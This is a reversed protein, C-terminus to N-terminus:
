DLRHRKHDREQTMIQVMEVVATVVQRQVTFVVQVVVVAVQLSELM